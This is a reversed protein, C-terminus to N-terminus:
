TLINEAYGGFRVVNRKGKKCSDPANRPLAAAVWDEGKDVM